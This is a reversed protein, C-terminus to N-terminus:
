VEFKFDQLQLDEQHPMSRQPAPRLDVVDDVEIKLDAVEVDLHELPFQSM